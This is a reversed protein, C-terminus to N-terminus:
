CRDMLIVAEVKGGVCRIFVTPGPLTSCLNECIWEKTVNGPRSIIVNNLPPFALLENAACYSEFDFNPEESM